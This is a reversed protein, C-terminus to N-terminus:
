RTGGKLYSTIFESRFIEGMPIELDNIYVQHNDFSTVQGLNVIFSKSVRVFKETPLKQYMTKLNMATILKQTTTYIVVYDKLAEIYILDNFDVKYTRRDSQIFIFDDTKWEITSKVTEKSLLRSYLEAKQVAKELRSSDIPKLLYDIADLEYSKVAYQPYATTFIVLCGKPLRAALELGNLGPMEIDLFLLDIHHNGLYELAALANSFKGSVKLSSTEIILAEMEARALPEDDIIICNM